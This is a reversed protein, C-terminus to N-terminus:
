LPVDPVAVRRRERIRDSPDAVFVDGRRRNPNLAAPYGVDDMLLVAHSERAEEVEHPAYGFPRESSGYVM